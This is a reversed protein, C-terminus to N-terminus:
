LALRFGASSVNYSPYFNRNSVRCLKAAMNWCGSRGQYNSSGEPYAPNTQSDSTYYYERDACIEWVNGSMDYLGLENPKKTGVTHTGYDPSGTGVLYSNNVYWAVEDIDNSGAYKYGKSLNGGRAAFEWEAETPLRFNLGTLYKLRSIFVNIEISGIGEVPRQKNEPYGNKSSIYSPHVLQEYLDHSRDVIDEMVAEWLEQTVETQGISYTSLTVQHVPYEDDEPDTTGQEETAGMMFTGGEVTVMTFSVGNVTFTETHPAGPECGGYLLYDILSTVDQIDVMGDGSADANELNIGTADNSLLYDILATVDNISVTGNGDVDGKLTAGSAEIPVALM